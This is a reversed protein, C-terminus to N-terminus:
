LISEVAHVRSRNLLAHKPMWRRCGCTNDFFPKPLIRALLDENIANIEPDEFFGKPNSALRPYLNDGIFYGASALTGAVMSTGSRGSGLILCNRMRNAWRRNTRVIVSFRFQLAYM